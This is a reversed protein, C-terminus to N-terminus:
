TDERKQKSIVVTFYGCNDPISDIGTYIKQNKLGCNEIAYIDTGNLIRLASRAKKMLVKTGATNLLAESETDPPSPIVILPQKDQVLPIKLEAAAACFSTVGACMEYEYGMRSIRDAIYSFTSYVSIDGINLLATNEGKELYAAITEAARMHECQRQVRNENMQSEIFIIQKKSMDCVQSAIDLALHKKGATLPAAIVSCKEILRVAKLTM